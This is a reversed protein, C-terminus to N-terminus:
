CDSRGVKALNESLEMVEDETIDFLLSYATYRTQIDLFGHRLGFQMLYPENKPCYTSLLHNLELSQAPTSNNLPEMTKKRIIQLISQCM